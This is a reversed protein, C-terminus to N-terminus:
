NDSFRFHLQRRVFTIAVHRAGRRHLERAAVEAQELTEIPTGLITATESENPCLFDVHLLEHPCDKPAPAPDLIIRVGSSRAIEMAALVPELPAELQVLLIDSSAIAARAAEVDAITLRANAGSVVLISNQGSQEVAVIALGSECHDTTCVWQCDIQERHLNELLRGAFADDGVRGIMTVQGGARAAAIAQNAGKGGCTETSSDAFLTEGPVPLTACRIVLDM